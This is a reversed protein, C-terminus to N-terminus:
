SSSRAQTRFFHAIAPAGLIIGAFIGSGHGWAPVTKYIAGDIRMDELPVVQDRLPRISLIQRGATRKSNTVVEKMSEKFDPNQLYTRASVTQPNQIKGCIIAVGALNERRASANLVASAGASAGVLSVSSGDQSLTDILSLLRGLKLSFGEEHAWGLAFYHPTLGFLRWFQIAINQGYTRDDGLGPIYIVHHTM